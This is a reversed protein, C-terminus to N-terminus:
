AAPPTGRARARRTLRSRASDGGSIEIDDREIESQQVGDVHHRVVQPPVPRSEGVRVARQVLSRVVLPRVLLEVHYTTESSGLQAMSTFILM